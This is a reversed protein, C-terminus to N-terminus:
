SPAPKAAEQMSLWICWCIPGFPLYGGYGPAPMEFLKWKMVYPISYHWKPLSRINWMEWFFGCILAAVALTFLPGYDGKRMATMPTETGAMALTSGLIVLPAFWTLYFFPVPYLGTVVLGAVGAVLLIALGPRSPTPWEPGGAYATRFWRTTLLLDRTEFLAPFVTSFSITAMVAYKAESFHDAGDYWWNQVFRNIYEFYWWGAASAPFLAILTKPNKSLLSRGTRFFVLADVILIYGLWLPFFTYDKLSGLADFHGWACIWSAANLGMGAYGWWPLHHRIPLIAEEGGGRIGFRSPVVLIATLLLALACFLFFVPPAYGPSQVVDTRMPFELFVPLIGRHRAVPLLPLFLLLLGGAALVRRKM